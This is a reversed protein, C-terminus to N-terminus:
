PHPQTFGTNKLNPLFPFSYSVRGKVANFHMPLHTHWTFLTVFNLEKILVPEFDIGMCHEWKGHPTNSQIHINVAPAESTPCIDHLIHWFMVLNWTELEGRSAHMFNLVHHWTHLLLYIQLYVFCFLGFHQLSIKLPFHSCDELFLFIWNFQACLIKGRSVPKHSSNLWFEIFKWVLVHLKWGFGLHVWGGNQASCQLSSSFM